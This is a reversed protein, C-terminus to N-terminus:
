SILDETCAHVQARVNHMNRHKCEMVCGRACIALSCAYQASPNSSSAATGTGAGAALYGGFRDQMESFAHFRPPFKLMQASSPGM